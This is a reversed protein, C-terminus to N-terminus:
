CLTRERCVNMEKRYSRLDAVSVRSAVDTAINASCNRVAAAMTGCSLVRGVAMRFAARETAAQWCGRVSPACVRAV